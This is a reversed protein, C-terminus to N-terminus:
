QPPPYTYVFVKLGLEKAQSIMNATGKSEGDWIAILAEAYEAMEKNRRPGASRKYLNWNAPFPKSPCGYLKAESDAAWDVLGSAGHVIETVSLCSASLAHRVREVAFPLKRSGAIIVKM